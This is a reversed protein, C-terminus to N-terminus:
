PEGPRAPPTPRRAAAVGTVPTPTQWAYDEAPPPPVRPTQTTTRTGGRSLLTAGFGATVAVWTVIAVVFRLIGGVIGLWAVAGGLVWLIFYLSLGILLFQLIPPPAYSPAAGRWRMTADGTVLAMALFGLALAGAAALVFAVVAFPILLIGLITICLVIITGALAPILAIEGFLGYLFARSFDEHIRAAITELNRRAFLVVFLGIVALVLYWGVALSISRRAAQAPTRHHTTVVPGVTLASLTRVEGGVSGGDNRVAGGVSLVNGRVTAGPHLTVDGGIAVADGNVTGAIDLDGHWTAISGSVTTGAPVSQSGRHVDSPSLTLGNPDRSLSDLWVGISDRPTTSSQARVPAAAVLLLSAACLWRVPRM